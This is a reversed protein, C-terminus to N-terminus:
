KMKRTEKFGWFIAKTSEIRLEKQMQMKTKPHTTELSKKKKVFKYASEYNTYMLVNYLYYTDYSM